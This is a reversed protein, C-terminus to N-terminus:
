TRRYSQLVRGGAPATAVVLEYREHTVEGTRRQFRVVAAVTSPRVVAPTPDISVAAIGSYFAFFRTYGGSQARAPGGLLRFADGPRRPLLGYYRRVFAIDAADEAARDATPPATPPAPAAPGPVPQAPRAPPTAAPAVPPPVAPAATVDVARPAPTQRVIALDALGVALLAVLLAARFRTTPPRDPPWTMEAGTGDSIKTRSPLRLDCARM